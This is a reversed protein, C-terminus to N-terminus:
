HCVTAPTHQVPQANHHIVVSGSCYLSAYNDSPNFQIAPAFRYTTGANLEVVRTAALTDWKRNWGVQTRVSECGVYGLHFPSPNASTDVGIFFSANTFTTAQGAVGHDTFTLSMNIVAVDGANAVYPETFCGPAIFTSAYFLDGNTNDLYDEFRLITPPHGGGQLNAVADQLQQQGSRLSAVEATLTQTSQELVAVRDMLQQLEGAPPPDDPSEYAVTLTYTSNTAFGNVSVYFDGPGALDCRETSNGAYPRCDYATLTPTAGRRVYLDADGTGTLRASFSGAATSFPGFHNWETEAVTGSFTENEQLAFSSSAVDEGPTTCAAAAIVFMGTGVFSVLRSM